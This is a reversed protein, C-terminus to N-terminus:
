SLYRRMSKVDLIREHEEFDTGDIEDGVYSYLSLDHYDDLENDDYPVYGDDQFAYISPFFCCSCPKSSPFYEYYHMTIQACKATLNADMSINCCDQIHLYKLHPCNDIITTLGKNSLNDHVLKLSRLGHM